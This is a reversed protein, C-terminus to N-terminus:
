GARSMQGLGGAGGDPPPQGGAMMQQLVQQNGQDTMGPRSVREYTRVTEDPMERENGAAQEPPGQVGVLKEVLDMIEPCNTFKAKIKMYEMMFESVGPQSFLPLTPVIFNKVVDDIIAISNQPTRAQLSYPDIRIDMEEFPKGFRQMPTVTRQIRIDPVGPAAFSSKMEARPNHWFFWGLSRMMEQASTVARYGMSNVLNSATQTVLKEQTATDAQSSLGGLARLNGAQENFTNMGNMMYNAVNVNPGSNVVVEKVADPNSLHIAEGDKANNVRNADEADRYATNTKARSAQNNLKKWLLNFEKHMCLLDMVPSKPMLNGPVELFSLFNYPGCAPGIWDQVLLPEEYDGDADFTVVIQERPLYVEWLECYDHYAEGLYDGRGISEIREDGGENFLSDEKAVVKLRQKKKFMKSQKVDDVLACYRHALYACERFKKAKMDCCFDQFAINCIGPEGMAKGYGAFRAETPAVISTKTIGVLFLADVIATKFVDGFNMKLLRRNTDDEFSACFAKLQRDFTSAMLKPDSGIMHGTVVRIFLSILNIPNQKKNEGYDGGAFEAVADFLNERYIQLAQYDDKMVKVLRPLDVSRDAAKVM